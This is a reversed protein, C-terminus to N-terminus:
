QGSSCIILHSPSSFFLVLFIFYFYNRKHFLFDRSVTDKQIVAPSPLEPVFDPVGPKRSITMFYSDDQPQIAVFIHNQKSDFTELDIPTNSDQFIVVLIDNGIHRKRELQQVNEGEMLPLMPAVHFMVEYGQWKTYV